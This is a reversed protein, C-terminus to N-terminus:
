HPSTLAPADEIATWSRSVACTACWSTADRDTLPAIRFQMGGLAEVYIGGLGVGVLPGFQPDEVLGVITETGDLIMPQITVGEVADDYGRERAGAM